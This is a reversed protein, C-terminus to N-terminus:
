SRPLFVELGDTFGKQDKEGISRTLQTPLHAAFLSSMAITETEIPCLKQLRDARSVEASIVTYSQREETGVNGLNVPGYSLGFGLTVPLKANALAENAQKAANFTAAVALSCVIQEAHAKPTEQFVALLGDGTFQLVEGANATIAPVIADYIQNILDIYRESGLDQILPTSGRIDALLIAATVNLSQGRALTGNIVANGTNKGLYTRLLNKLANSKTEDATDAMLSVYESADSLHDDRVAIDIPMPLPMPM